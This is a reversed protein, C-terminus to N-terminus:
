PGQVTGDPVATAAIPPTPQVNGLWCPASIANLVEALDTANETFKNWADAFSPQLEIARRYDKEAAAFRKLRQLANGRNSYGQAFNADQTIARDYLCIAGDFKGQDFLAIGLNNLAGATELIM